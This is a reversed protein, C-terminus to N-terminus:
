RRQRRVRAFPGEPCLEAKRGFAAPQVAAARRVQGGHLEHLIKERRPQHVRAKADVGGAAVAAVRRKQAADRGRIAPHQAKVNLGLGDTGGAGPQLLCAHGGPPVLQVALAVRVKQLIHLGARRVGHHEVEAPQRARVM